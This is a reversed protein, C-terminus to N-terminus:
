KNRLLKLKRNIYISYIHNKKM